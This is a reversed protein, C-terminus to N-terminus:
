IPLLEHSSNLAMGLRNAITNCKSEFYISTDSTLYLDENQSNKVVANYLNSPSEGAGIIMGSASQIVMNSGYTYADHDDYVAIYANGTTVNNDTQVNEFYIVAPSNTAISSSKKIHLDGTITGGSLKLYTSSITNGDGDKTAGIDWINSWAGWALTSNNRIRKYFSMTNDGMYLQYM